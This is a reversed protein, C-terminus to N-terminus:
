SPLHSLRTLFASVRKYRFLKIDFVGVSHIRIWLADRTQRSLPAAELIVSKEISGHNSDAGNALRRTGDARSRATTSRMSGRGETPTEVRVPKWGERLVTLGAAGAAIV